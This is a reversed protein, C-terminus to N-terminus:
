KGVNISGKYLAVGDVGFWSTAGELVEADLDAHILCPSLNPIAAIVDGGNKYWCHVALPELLGDPLELSSIVDRSCPM